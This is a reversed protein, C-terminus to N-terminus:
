LKRERNIIANSARIDSFIVTTGLQISYKEFEDKESDQKIWDLRIQSSLRLIFYIKFKNEIILISSILISKFAM